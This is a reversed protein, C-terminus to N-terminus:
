YVMVSLLKSYGLAVFTLLLYTLPFYTIISLFLIGLFVVKLNFNQNKRGRRAMFLTIPIFYISILVVGGQALLYFFANSYGTDRGVSMYKTLASYIGYGNGFLPADVWAKIGCIYDEMRISSSSGVSFKQKIISQIAIISILFMIPGFIYKAKIARQSGTIYKIFLFIVAFVIGSSSFTTIIATILIIIKVKNVQIKLYMEVLLSVSLILSYIPAECFIGSNRTGKYLGYLFNISRTEYYLGFYSKVQLKGGWDINVVATSNIKGLYTGFFWLLLSIVALILVINSYKYLLSYQRGKGQVISFYIILCPIFIIFKLVFSQYTHYPFVSFLGFILIVFYYVGLIKILKRFIDKSINLLFFSIFFLIVASYMCRNIIDYDGKEMRMYVSHCELIIFLALVYEFISITINKISSIKIKM